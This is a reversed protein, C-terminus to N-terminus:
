TAMLLAKTTLIALNSALSKFSNTLILVFNVSNNFFSTNLLYIKFAILDMVFIPATSKKSTSSSGINKSILGM